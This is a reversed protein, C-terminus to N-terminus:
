ENELIKQEKLRAILINITFFTIGIIVIIILNKTLLNDQISMLSEKMLNITYTMPLYSNLWRFGKTVTEIPFTGGAAALQLVLLILAIFKGIDNFCAILLEIIGMFTNGILVLSLYYLLTNTLELGLFLHLLMGLVLSSITILGHYSLMQKVKNKSNMGLVGFREEKDYYFIMFMMLCGIWLGISIFLPSFSLGYSNVKNVEKTDVKIPEKSYDSLKEVKKVSVKTKEINSDLESKASLVSSDLTNIGSSLTQTGNNLANIGSHLEISSSYLVNTGNFLSHVGSSLELSGNYLDNLGSNLQGLGNSLESLSNISTETAKQKARDAVQTATEAAIQESAKYVASYAANQTVIEM